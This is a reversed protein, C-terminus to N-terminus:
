LGPIPLYKGLLKGFAIGAGIGIIWTLYPIIGILNSVEAFGLNSMWIGLLFVFVIVNAIDFIIGPLYKAVITVIITVIIAILLAMWEIM